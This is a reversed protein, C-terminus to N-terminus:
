ISRKKDLREREGTETGNKSATKRYSLSNSLIVSILLKRKM